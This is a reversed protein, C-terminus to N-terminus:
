YCGHIDFFNAVLVVTFHIFRKQFVLNYDLDILEDFLHFFLPGESGPPSQKSRRYAQALTHSGLYMLDSIFADLNQLHINWQFQIDIRTGLEIRGAEFRFIALQKDHKGGTQQFCKLIVFQFEYDAMLKAVM